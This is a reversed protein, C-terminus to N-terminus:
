RRCVLATRFRHRVLKVHLLVLVSCHSRQQTKEDHRKGTTGGLLKTTDSRSLAFVSGDNHKSYCDALRTSCASRDLRGTPRYTYCECDSTMPQKRFYDLSSSSPSPKDDSARFESSGAM